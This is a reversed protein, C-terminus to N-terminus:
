VVTPAAQAKPEPVAASGTPNAPASPDAGHQEENKQLHALRKAEEHIDQVQKTTTTYFARVKEGYTSSLAKAYYQL